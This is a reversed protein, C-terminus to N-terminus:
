VSSAKPIKGLIKETHIVVSRQIILFAILILM